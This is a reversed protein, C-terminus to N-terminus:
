GGSPASREKARLEESKYRLERVMETLIAEAAPSLHFHISGDEIVLAAASVDAATFGENDLIAVKFRM